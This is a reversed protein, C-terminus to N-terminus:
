PSRGDPRSQWFPGAFPFVFRAAARWERQIGRMIPPLGAEHRKRDVDRKYHQTAVYAAVTFGPERKVVEAAQAAAAVGDGMQAFIAALFAHHTRDPRTTRAFAFAALDVRLRGATL